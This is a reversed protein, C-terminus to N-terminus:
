YVSCSNNNNNNNNNNNHCLERMLDYAMIHMKNNEKWREVEKAFMVVSGVDIWRKTIVDNREKDIKLLSDIEHLYQNMDNEDEMKEIKERMKEIVEKLLSTKENNMIEEKEKEKEKEEEVDFITTHTNIKVVWSDDDKYVIRSQGKHLRTIFHYSSESEGWRKIEIYAKNNLKNKNVMIIRGLTAIGNKHFVKSIFKATFKKEITPIYISTIPTM